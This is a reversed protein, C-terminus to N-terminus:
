VLLDDFGPLGRLIELDTSGLLEGRVFYGRDRAATLERVADEPDGLAAHICAIRFNTFGDKPFRERAEDILERAEKRRGIRAFLLATQTRAEQDDPFQILQELGNQIGNEAVTIASDTVGLRMHVLYLNDAPGIYRPRQEIAEELHDQANTFNGERALLAGLYSHAM